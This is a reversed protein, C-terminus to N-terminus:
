SHSERTGDPQRRQRFHWSDSDSEYSDHHHAAKKPPRPML